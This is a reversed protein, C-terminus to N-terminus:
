TALGDPHEAIATGRYTFRPLPITIGLAGNPWFLPQLTYDASVQYTYLFEGTQLNASLTGATLAGPFTTQNGNTSRTEIVQLSMGRTGSTPRAGSFRGFPGNLVLDNELNQMNTRAQSYTTASGAARAATSACFVISAVGSLYSLLSIFPFLFAFFFIALVPGFEALTAGSGRRNRIGRPRYIAM